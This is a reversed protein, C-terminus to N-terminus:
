CNFPARGVAFRRVFHIEDFRTPTGDIDLLPLTIWVDGPIAGGVPAAVWYHKDSSAAGLSGRGGRLPADVPLVLKEMAPTEPSRAPAAPNVHAIAAFHAPTGDKADIRITNERLIVTAGDPVDFQVRVLGGQLPVVSVIAQLRSQHVKVGIPLEPTLSCNEYVPTGEGPEAVYVTAPLVVCGACAAAAFLGAGRGRATRLFGM